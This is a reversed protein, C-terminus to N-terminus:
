GFDEADDDDGPTKREAERALREAEFRKSAARGHEDELDGAKAHALLEARKAPKSCAYAMVWRYFIRWMSAQRMIKEVAAWTGVSVLVVVGLAGALRVGWLLVFTEVTSLVVTVRQM